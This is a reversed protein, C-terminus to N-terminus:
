TKHRLLMDAYSLFKRFMSRTFYEGANSSVHLEIKYYYLNKILIDFRHMELFGIM